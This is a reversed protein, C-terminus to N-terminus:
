GCLLSLLYSSWLNHWRCGPPICLTTDYNCHQLYPVVVPRGQFQGESWACRIGCSPGVICTTTIPNTTIFVNSICYFTQLIFWECSLIFIVCSVYASVLVMTSSGTIAFVTCILVMEGYWRLTWRPPMEKPGMWRQLFTTKAEAAGKGGATSQGTAKKGGGSSLYRARQLLKSANISGSSFTSRYSNVFPASIHSSMKSISGNSRTSTRCAANTAASLSSTRVRVPVPLFSKRLASSSLTASGCRGLMTSISLHSPSPLPPLDYPSLQVLLCVLTVYRISLSVRRGISLQDFFPTARDKERTDM